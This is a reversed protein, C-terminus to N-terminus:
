WINFAIALFRLPSHTLWFEFSHWQSGSVSCGPEYSYEYANTRTHVLVRVVRATKYQQLVYPRVKTEPNYSCGLKRSAM